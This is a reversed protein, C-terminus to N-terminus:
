HGFRRGLVKVMQAIGAEVAAYLVESRRKRRMRSLALAGIGALAVVGASAALRPLNLDKISM